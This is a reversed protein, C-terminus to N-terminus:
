LLCKKKPKNGISALIDELNGTKKKPTAKQLEKEEKSGVEITKTVEIKEGAFDMVQKVSYTKNKDASNTNMSLPTASTSSLSLLAEKKDENQKTSLFNTNDTTPILKNELEQQLQQQPPPPPQKKPQTNKNLQAWLADIDVSTTNEEINKSEIAQNEKEQENKKTSIPISNVDIRRIRGGSFTLNPDETKQKKVKKLTKESRKRKKSKKTITQEDENEEQEDGSEDIDSEQGELFSV